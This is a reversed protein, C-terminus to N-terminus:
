DRPQTGTLAMAGEDLAAYALCAEAFPGRRAPLAVIRVARAGGGPVPLTLVQGVRVTQAARDVVRGDLRIHRGECLSQALTRSRALRAFWLWKDLRLSQGDAM